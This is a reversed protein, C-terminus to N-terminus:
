DALFKEVRAGLFPYHFNNGNLVSVAAVVRAVLLGLSFPLICTFMLSPFMFPLVMFRNINEPSTSSNLTAFTTGFVGLFIVGFLCFFLLGMFLTVTFDFALAQAAQFRVFRSKDKQIAWIILAGIMGFFHALASMMREDSTPRLTTEETM